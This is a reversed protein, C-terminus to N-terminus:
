HSEVQHLAFELMAKAGSHSKIRIKEQIMLASVAQFVAYYLRNVASKWRKENILSRADSVMEAACELRYNILAQKEDNM